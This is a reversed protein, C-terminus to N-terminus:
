YVQDDERNPRQDPNSVRGDETYNDKNAFIELAEDWDGTLFEGGGELYTKGLAEWNGVNSAWESFDVIGSDNFM